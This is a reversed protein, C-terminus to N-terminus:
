DEKLMALEEKTRKRLSLAKAFCKLACIGCGM